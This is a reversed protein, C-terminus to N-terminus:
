RRREMLDLTLESKAFISKKSNYLDRIERTAHRTTTKRRRNVATGNQSEILITTCDNSM